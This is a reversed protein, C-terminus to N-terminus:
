FRKASSPIVLRSRAALQARAANNASHQRTAYDHRSTPLGPTSLANTASSPQILFRLLRTAAPEPAQAVPRILSSLANM